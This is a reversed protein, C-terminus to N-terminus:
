NGWTKVKSCFDIFGIQGSDFRYRYLSGDFIFYLGDKGCVPNLTKSYSIGTARMGDGTYLRVVQILADSAPIYKFLWGSNCEIFFYHTEGAFVSYGASIVVANEPLTIPYNARIRWVQLSSGNESLTAGDWKYGNWSFAGNWEKATNFYNTTWSIDINNIKATRTASNFDYVTFEGAYNIGTKIGSIDYYAGSINVAIVDSGSLFMDTIQTQLTKFLVNNKYAKFYYKYDPECPELIEGTWINGDLDVVCFDPTINLSIQSIIDGNSDMYYFKDNVTASMSGPFTADGTYGIYVSSGDFFKVQEGDQFIIYKIGGGIKDPKDPNPIIVPPVYPDTVNVEAVSTKKDTGSDSGCAIIFLLIAFFLNRM